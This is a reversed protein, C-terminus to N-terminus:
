LFIVFNASLKYLCLYTASPEKFNSIAACVVVKTITIFTKQKKVVISSAMPVIMDVFAESLSLCIPTNNYDWGLWNTLLNKCRRSISGVKFPVRKFNSCSNSTSTSVSFSIHFITLLVPGRNCFIVKVIERFSHLVWFNLLKPDFSCNWQFHKTFTLIRLLTGNKKNLGGNAAAVSHSFSIRVIWFSFKM